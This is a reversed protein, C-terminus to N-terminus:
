NKLLARQINSIKPWPCGNREGFGWWGQASDTKRQSHDKPRKM